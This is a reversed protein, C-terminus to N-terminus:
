FALAIAEILGRRSRRPFAVGPGPQIGPKAQKLSAAAVEGRFGSFQAISHVQVARKLSAAAVEGRFCDGSGAPLGLIRAEILGRRSRRPFKLDVGGTGDGTGQKLSAAAVEGRFGGSAISKTARSM